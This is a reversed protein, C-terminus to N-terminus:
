TRIQKNTQQCTMVWKTGRIKKRKAHSFYSVTRHQVSASHVSLATERVCALAFTWVCRAASTVANTLAIDGTKVCVTASVPGHANRKKSQLCSNCPKCSQLGMPSDTQSNFFCVLCWSILYQFFDSGPFTTEKQLGSNSHLIYCFSIQSTSSFFFFSFLINIIPQWGTKPMPYTRWKLNRRFNQLIQEWFLKVLKWFASTSIM